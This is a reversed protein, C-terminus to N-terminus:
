DRGLVLWWWIITLIVIQQGSRDSMFYLQIDDGILIWTFKHLNVHPFMTSKVILNKSTAFNVATVGNDNNIEDLSADGTTSKFIFEKGVKANFDQLLMKM